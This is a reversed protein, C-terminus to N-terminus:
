LEGEFKGVITEADHEDRELWWGCYDCRYNGTQIGVGIDVEDYNLEYRCDPCIDNM